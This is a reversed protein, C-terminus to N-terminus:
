MNKIGNSQKSNDGGNNSEELRDLVRKLIATKAKYNEIMACVVQERNGPPVDALERRLQEMIEDLQELDQGVEAAQSGTFTALKERKVSIDRQYYQELEKYEGSVESMAMASAANGQREYWIGGGIGAVLLALSAAIRMISGQWGIHVKIAKPKPLSGTINEWAQGSPLEADFAERNQKIFSELDTHQILRDLDKEIGAWVLDSPLATDLLVRDCMLQRELADSDPLRELMRELGPWGHTGPMAADFADRHQQIFINITNKM